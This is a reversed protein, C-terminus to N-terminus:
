TAYKCVYFAGISQYIDFCVSGPRYLLDVAKAFEVILLVIQECIVYDFLAFSGATAILALCVACNCIPIAKMLM